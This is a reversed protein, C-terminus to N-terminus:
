AFGNVSPHPVVADEEPFPFATLFVLIDQFAPLFRQKQNYLIYIYINFHFMYLISIIISFTRLAPNKGTMRKM